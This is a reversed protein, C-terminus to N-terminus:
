NPSPWSLYPIPSLCFIGSLVNSFISSISKFLPVPCFQGLEQVRLTQILIDSGTQFAAGAQQKSNQGPKWWLGLSPQWTSLSQTGGTKTLEEEMGEVRERTVDKKTM